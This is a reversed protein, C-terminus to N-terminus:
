NFINESLKEIGVVLCIELVSVNKDSVLDKWVLASVKEVALKKLGFVLFDQAQTTVSARSVFEQSTKHRIKKGTCLLIYVCYM